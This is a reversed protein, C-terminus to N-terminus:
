RHFFNTLAVSISLLLLYNGEIKTRLSDLISVYASSRKIQMLDLFYLGVNCDYSSFGFYNQLESIATKPDAHTSLVNRIHQKGTFIKLETSSKM